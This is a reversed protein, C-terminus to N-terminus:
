PSAAHGSRGSNSGCVGPRRVEFLQPIKHKELYQEAVQRPDEFMEAAECPRDSLALTSTPAATAAPLAALPATLTALSASCCVSQPCTLGSAQRNAACSAFAGLRLMGCASAAAHVTGVMNQQAQGLGARLM